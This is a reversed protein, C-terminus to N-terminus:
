AKLGSQCLAEIEEVSKVASTFNHFGNKTILIDDEIRVGGVPMYKALVEHNLYPSDKFPELLFPNFYCGPEVTIVHSEQLTGVFRLYKALPHKSPGDPRSALPSSHVDLGLAHGLGHPLFASSIRSELIDAVLKQRERGERADDRLNDTPDGQKIVADPKKLLGLDLLGEVLIHHMLLHIKEWDAGPRMRGLAAEQMKLVLNYIEKAEKTFRGKNGIPFTRTIDSAYNEYECGADLLLLSGEGTSPFSSKNKIYHLTGASTGSAAITEYAMARSKRRACRYAFLASAEYESAVGGTGLARMVDEHARSSIDNAIQILEIEAPTKLLQASQCAMLLEKDTLSVKDASASGALTAGPLVHLTSTPLQSLVEDFADLTKVDSVNLEKKVEEPSMPLGSWMVEEAMVPPIFLISTVNIDYEEVSAGEDKSTWALLRADPIDCGTLYVFNSEQRFALERDTDDRYRTPSGFLCLALPQDGSHSRLKLEEFVKFTHERAPYQSMRTTETLM